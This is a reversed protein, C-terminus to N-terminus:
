YVEYSVMAFAYIDLKTSYPTTFEGDPEYSFLEPAMYEAVGAAISMNAELDPFIMASGFDSIQAVGNDDILVNNQSFAM